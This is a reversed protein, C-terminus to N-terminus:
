LGKCPYPAWYRQESRKFAALFPELWAHFDVNWDADVPLVTDV